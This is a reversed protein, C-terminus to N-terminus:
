ILHYCSILRQWQRQVQLNPCFKLCDKPAAEASHSFYQFHLSLSTLILVICPLFNNETSNSLQELLTQERNMLLEVIFNVNKKCSQTREYEFTM